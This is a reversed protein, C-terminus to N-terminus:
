DEGLVDQILRDLEKDIEDGAFAKADDASGTSSVVSEVTFVEDDADAAAADEPTGAPLIDDVTFVEDDPREGATPEPIVQEGHPMSRQQIAYISKMLSAPDEYSDPVNATVGTKEGIGCEAEADETVEDKMNLVLAAFQDSQRKAMDAANALRANLAGLSAKYDAAAADADDMRRQAEADAEALILDARKRAEAEIAGAKGSADAVTKEAAALESRAAESAERRMQDATKRAEVLTLAVAGERASFESVQSELIAIRDNLLRIEEQKTNLQETLEKVKRSM